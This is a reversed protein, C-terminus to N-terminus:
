FNPSTGTLGRPLSSRRSTRALSLERYLSDSPLALRQSPAHLTPCANRGARTAGRLCSHGRWRAPKTALWGRRPDAPTSLPSTGSLNMSRACAGPARPRRPIIVAPQLVTGGPVAHEVNRGGTRGASDTGDAVTTGTTGAPEATGPAPSVLHLLCHTLAFCGSLGVRLRCM